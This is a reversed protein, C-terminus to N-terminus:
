QAVDRKQVTGDAQATRTEGEAVAAQDPSAVEHPSVAADPHVRQVGDVVVRDGAQLGKLVVRQGGLDRGLEIERYGVKNETSVVFVFKKSQDFGIARDPILILDWVRSSALRVSVFMGPVLTAETNDFKARARITGSAADIRNDFNQIFGRYVRGTGGQVVLEVPITREQANGNAADRITDLYTQEDVEFDAYVSDSSVISTLLPPSAKVYAHDLDVEAQALDARAADLAAQASRQQENSKDLDSQAIARSGFLAQARRQDFLALELKSQASAVNARDRDVTAQYSRPDIVFLIDGAKVTQGDQFCVETIRGSVEPRIDASNVARLRGSFDNWLRLKQRAVTQVSVPISVPVDNGMAPAASTERHSIFFWAAVAALAAGLIAPFLRSRGAKEVSPRKLDDGHRGNNPADSLSIQYQTQM